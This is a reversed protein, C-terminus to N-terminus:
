SSLKSFRSCVYPPMESVGLRVSYCRALNEFRSIEQGSRHPTSSLRCIWAKEIRSEWPIRARNRWVIRLTSKVPTHRQGNAPAGAERDAAKIRPVDGNVSRLQVIAQSPWRPTGVSNIFVPVISIPKLILTHKLNCMTVLTQEINRKPNFFIRRKRFMSGISILGIVINTPLFLLPLLM